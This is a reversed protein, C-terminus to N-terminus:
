KKLVRKQNNDKKECLTVGTYKHISRIIRNVVLDTFQRREYAHYLAKKYLKRNDISIQFIVNNINTSTFYISQGNFMDEQWFYVKEICCKLMKYGYADSVFVIKNFFERLLSIDNLIKSDGIHTFHIEKLFNVDFGFLSNETNRTYLSSNYKELAMTSPIIVKNAKIPENKQDIYLKEFGDNFIISKFFKGEFVTTNTEKLSSPMIVEKSQGLNIIVDFMLDFRSYMNQNKSRRIMTIIGEPVNYKAETYEPPKEKVVPLVMEYIDSILRYDYNIFYDLAYRDIYYLNDFVKFITVFSELSIKNALKLEYHEKLPVNDSNSINQMYEPTKIMVEKFFSKLDFGYTALLFALSLNNTLIANADYVGDYVTDAGPNLIANFTDWFDKHKTDFQYTLLHDKDMRIEEIMQMIIQIYISYETFDREEDDNSLFLPSEMNHNIDLTKINFKLKYLNFLDDMSVINKGFEDFVRLKAEIISLGNSNFAKPVGYKLMTRFDRIYYFLDNRLQSIDDSHTYSYIEYYRELAANQNIPEDFSNIDDIQEQSLITNAYGKLRKLRSTLYKSGNLELEKDSNNITKFEISCANVKSFIAHTQNKLVCLIGLLNNIEDKIANRRNFLHKIKFFSENQLEKLAIIRYKIENELEIIRNLYLKLKSYIILSRIRKEEDNLPEIEESLSINMLLDLNMDLEQQLSDDHLSISTLTKSNNLLDRFFSKLEDIKKTSLEDNFDDRQPMKVLDGFTALAINDNNKNKLFSKFFDKIGMISKGKFTAIYVLM